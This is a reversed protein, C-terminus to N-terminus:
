TEMKAVLEPSAPTSVPPLKGHVKAVLQQITKASFETVLIRYDPPAAKNKPSIILTSEHKAMLFVRM